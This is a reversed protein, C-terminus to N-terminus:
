SVFLINTNLVEGLRQAYTRAVADVGGGPPYPVIIKIPKDAWPAALVTGVVLLSAFLSLAKILKNIYM